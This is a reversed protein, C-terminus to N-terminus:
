NGNKKNKLLYLFKIEMKEYSLKSLRYIFYVSLFLIILQNLIDPFPLYKKLVPYMLGVFPIIFIYQYVYSSYTYKNGFNLIFKHNLFSLFRPNYFCNLFMFFILLNIMVDHYLYQNNLIVFDYRTIAAFFTTNLESSIVIGHYIISFLYIAAIIYFIIKYLKYNSEFNYTALLIGYFFCDFQLFTARYYILGKLIYDQEHPLVNHYFWVRFIPLFLIFFISLYVIKKRDLFYILFPILIYFQEEMSLSWLHSFFVFDPRSIGEIFMAIERYNYTFTLLMWGFKKLEVILKLVDGFGIIYFAFGIFFIFFLYAFYVPFIRLIRKIYFDKYFQKFSSAKEKNILLGRSILFASMVFFTHMSFYAFAFPINIYSFQLHVTIVFIASLFRISDFQVININKTQFENILM